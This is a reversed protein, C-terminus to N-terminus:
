LKKRISLVFKRITEAADAETPSSQYQPHDSGALDSPITTDGQRLLLLRERGLKGWIWGVEIWVNERARKQTESAAGAADVLGGVDDPTVLAIAGDIDGALREWKEPLTAGSLFENRMVVPDPLKLERRLFDRLVDRHLSRGHIIALRPPRGAVGILKEIETALHDQWAFTLQGLLQPPPLRTWRPYTQSFLQVLRESAGGFSGIPIVLKDAVAAAFSAHFTNDAGAVTIVCDSLKVQFLKAHKWEAAPSVEATMWKLAGATWASFATRNGFLRIPSRQQPSAELAGLAGEVANFDATYEHDSAAILDHGQRVVAAGIRRCATQFGAQDRLAWEGADENRWSGLVTVKM